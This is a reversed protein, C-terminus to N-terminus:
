PPEKFCVQSGLSMPCALPEAGPVCTPEAGPVCTSRRCCASPLPLLFFPLDPLRGSRGCLPDYLPCLRHWDSEERVEWPSELTEQM